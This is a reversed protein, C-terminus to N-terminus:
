WYPEGALTGLAVRRPDLEPPEASEASANARESSSILSTALDLVSSKLSDLLSYPTSAFSQDTALGLSDVVKLGVRDSRLLEVQSLM